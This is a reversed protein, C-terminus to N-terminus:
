IGALFRQWVSNAFARGIPPCLEESNLCLFGLARLSSPAANDFIAFTRGSFRTSNDAKAHKEHRGKRRDFAATIGFYSSPTPRAQRGKYVQGNAPDHHTSSSDDVVRSNKDLRNL